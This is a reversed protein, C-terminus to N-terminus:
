NHISGDAIRSCIVILYHSQELGMKIVEPLVGSSMDTKDRFVYRKQFEELHLNRDILETPLKFSEIAEQLWM